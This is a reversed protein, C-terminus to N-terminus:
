AHLPGSYGTRQEPGDDRGLVQGPSRVKGDNFRTRPEHSEPDAIHEVSGHADLFAFGTEQAIVWGGKERPVLAGVM